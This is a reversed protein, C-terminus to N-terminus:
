KEPSSPGSGTIIALADREIKAGAMRRLREENIQKQRDESPLDPQRKVVSEGPNNRDYGPTPVALDKVSYGSM